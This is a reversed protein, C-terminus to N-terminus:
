VRVRSQVRGCLDGCADSRVLAHIGRDAVIEVYRDALLLYVLVGCNAETDWVGLQAFLEHARQSPTMGQLVRALPLAAEIALRVQGDHTQEGRAVAREFVDLSAQPFRRRVSWHDTILHRLLRPLM